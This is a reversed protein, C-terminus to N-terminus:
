SISQIWEQSLVPKIKTCNINNKNFEIFYQIYEEVIPDTQSYINDVNNEKNNIENEKNYIDENKNKKKKQRKKNKKKGKKGENDGQIYKYVEELSFNETNKNENNKKNKNCNISQEIKENKIKKNNENNQESCLKKIEFPNASKKFKIIYSMLFINEKKIFPLDLIEGINKKYSSDCVILIDIIAKMSHKAEEFLVNKKDNNFSYGKTFIINIQHIKFLYDWYLDTLLECLCFKIKKKGQFNIIIKKFDKELSQCIDKIINYKDMLEIFIDLNLYEYDEISLKKEKIKNLFSKFYSNSLWIIILNYLGMVISKFSFFLFKENNEELLIVNNIENELNQIEVQNEDLKYTKNKKYYNYYKMIRKEIFKNINVKQEFEIIEESSSINKDIKYINEFKYVELNFDNNDNKNFDKDLSILAEIVINEKESLINSIISNSNKNQQIEEKKDNNIKKSTLSNEIEKIKKDSYNNFNPSSFTNIIGDNYLIDSKIFSNTFLDENNDYIDFKSDFNKEIFNSISHNNLTIKSSLKMFSNSTQEATFKMTFNHNKNINSLFPNDNINIKSENLFPDNIDNTISAFLNKNDNIERTNKNQSCFEKDNFLSTKSYNGIKKFNFENNFLYKGYKKEICIEHYKKM